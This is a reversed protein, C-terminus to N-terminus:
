STAEPYPYWGDPQRTLFADIAGATFAAVGTVQILGMYRRYFQDVTAWPLKQKILVTGATLDAVAWAKTTIVDMEQSGDTPMSSAADSALILQLTAAGGSTCTTAVRAVFWLGDSGGVNGAAAASKLDVTNGIAYSGAAGTNLATGDAFELLSDLIM